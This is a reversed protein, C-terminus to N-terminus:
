KKDVKTQILLYKIIKLLIKKYAGRWGAHAVAVMKINIDAFLIPACDAVTVFIGLGPTMSTLADAELIENSYMINESKLVRNSHIQKVFM